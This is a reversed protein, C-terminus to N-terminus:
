LWWIHGQSEIYIM